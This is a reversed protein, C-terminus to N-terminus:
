AAAMVPPAVVAAATEPRLVLDGADARRGETCLWSTWGLRGAVGLRLAPVEARGLVLQADWELEDGVMNRVVAVLRRLGDGGPLLREFQAYRLPGFVLRFRHQSQYSRAGVVANVGLLGTDESRGLRCRATEPLELWGAVFERLAVPLGFYGELVSLLADPHRPLGALHGAYHLKAADPWADRDRLSPLGRGSLAGLYFAFRDRGPRDRQMTPQADAWARYFFSLLRHHFVDAFRVFAPDGQRARRRARETLHAPLPGNPGFLGFFLVALRPVSSRPGDEGALRYGSLTSPAFGLSPDQGLRVPDEGARKSRGLGPREPHACELLRVAQFFDFRYPEERLSADLASVDAPTTRETTAM